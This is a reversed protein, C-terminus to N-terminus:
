IKSHIALVTRAGRRVHNPANLLPYIPQLKVRKRVHSAWAQDFSRAFEDLEWVDNNVLNEVIQTFNDHKRDDVTCAVALAGVVLTGAVWASLNDSPQNVHATPVM